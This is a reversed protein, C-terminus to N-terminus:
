RGRELCACAIRARRVVVLVADRYVVVIPQGHLSPVHEAAPQVESAEREDGFDQADSVDLRKNM